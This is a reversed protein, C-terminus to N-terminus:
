TRANEDERALRLQHRIRRVFDQQEEASLGPARGGFVLVLILAAGLVTLWMTWGGFFNEDTVPGAAASSPPSASTAPREAIPSAVPALSTPGVGFALADGDGPQLGVASSVATAVLAQDEPNLASATLITVRLRFDRAATGNVREHAAADAPVEAEAGQWPSPETGAAALVLVKVDFALGPLTNEVAARARARYYHQVATQEEIEVPLASEVSTAPSIARGAEDLVVVDHLALDTVAAAVLRQIGEVRAEDVTVGRRLSITVAAKPASRNTRFLSREPLALHVRADVIGDMMMITRALEGQLARQYNIKQAFDTLGMDSKNFLEFGSTGKAPVESRVIALRVADAQDEPVLITSGGDRLRYEVGKADLEAVVASADAARLESYLITFDKKLFALYGLVLLGSLLLFLILGARLQREALMKFLPTEM